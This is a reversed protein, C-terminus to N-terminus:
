TPLRQRRVLRWGDPSRELKLAHVVSATMRYLREVNHTRSIVLVLSDDAVVADYVSMYVRDGKLFCPARPPCELVGVPDVFEAPRASPAVPQATIAALRGFAMSDLMLPGEFRQPVSEGAFSAQVVVDGLSGSLRPASNRGACAATALAMTMIIIRNM